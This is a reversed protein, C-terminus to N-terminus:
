CYRSYVFDFANPYHSHFYAYYSMDGPYDSEKEATRSPDDDICEIDDKVKDDICEIVDEPAEPPEHIGWSQELLPEMIQLICQKLVERAPDALPQSWSGIVEDRTGGKILTYVSRLPGFEFVTPADTQGYHGTAEVLHVAARCERCESKAKQLLRDTPGEIASRLSSTENM